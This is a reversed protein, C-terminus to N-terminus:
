GPLLLGVENGEYIVQWTRLHRCPEEAAYLLQGDALAFRYHHMPCELVGQEIHANELSHERHPCRPEILYLEGEHQVLMLALHDIRFHRRYNDHLNILKELPQFRM